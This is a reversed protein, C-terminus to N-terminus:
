REEYLLSEGLVPYTERFYPSLTSLPLFTVINDMRPDYAAAYFKGGLEVLYINKRVHIGKQKLAIKLRTLDERQLALNEYRQRARRMAHRRQSERYSLATKKRYNM